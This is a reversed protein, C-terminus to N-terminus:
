EAAEFFDVCEGVGQQVGLHEISQGTREILQKVVINRHCCKPDREFCLFCSRKNTAIEIAQNLDYQAVDTKMHNNFVTEFTDYDGNRAADRGEKPDGLGKLHIYEIGQSRLAEALGNKSFGKKRSLPRDRIDILISINKMMLTAVFDEINSGEYGITNVINQM